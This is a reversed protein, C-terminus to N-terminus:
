AKSAAAEAPKRWRRRVFGGVALAGVAVGFVAAPEPVPTFSITLSTSDGTVLFGGDTAFDATVNFHSAEFGSGYNVAGGTADVLTIVRPQNPTLDGIASLHINLRNTPSLESLDLTGGTVVLKSNTTDAVDIALTSGGVFTIDSELTLNNSAAGTGPRVTAGNAVTLSTAITGSGRLVGGQHDFSSGSVAGNVSVTGGDQIFGEGTTVNGSLTLIGAGEKRILGSGTISGGYELPSGPAPSFVLTSNNEINGAVSGTSTDSGLQLTGGLVKTTGTFTNTSTLILTNGGLKVLGLAGNSTDTIASSYTFPDGGVSLGLFAGDQFGTSGAGLSAIAAVDSATFQNVGGVSLTLTAGSGVTINTATWNSSNGNYLSSRNAFHVAGESITTTGSYTSSNTLVLTGGGTKTLSRSGSSEGLPGLHTLASGSGISWSQSAGLTLPVSFTANGGTLSIGEAGVILSGLGDFTLDSSPSLGLSVGRAYASNGITITTTGQDAFSAIAGTPGLNTSNGWDSFSPTWNDATFWDSDVSGNWVYPTQAGANEATAALAATVLLAILAPRTPRM